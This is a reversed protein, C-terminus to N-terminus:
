CLAPSPAQDTSRYVPQSHGVIVDMAWAGSELSYLQIGESNRYVPRNNHQKGTLTYDGLFQSWGERARGSVTFGVPKADEMHIPESESNIPKFFWVGNKEFFVRSEERWVVIKETTKEGKEDTKVGLIMQVSDEYGFPLLEPLLRFKNSGESLSLQKTMDTLKKARSIGM